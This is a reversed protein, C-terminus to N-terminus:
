KSGLGSNFILSMRKMFSVSQEVSLETSDSELIDKKKASSAFAWSISDDYYRKVNTVYSVLKSYGTNFFCEPLSLDATHLTKTCKKQDWFLAHEEFVSTVRTGRKDPQGNRNLYLESLRRTSMINVPSGKLYIVIKLTCTHEVGEDDTLWLIVTGMM